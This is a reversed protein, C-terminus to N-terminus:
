DLSLENLLFVQRGNRGSHLREPRLGFCGPPYLRVGIGGAFDLLQNGDVDTVVAGQGSAVAIQTLKSAGNAMARERRAVIAASLPGPLPTVLNISRNTTSM